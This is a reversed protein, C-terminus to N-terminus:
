EAAIRHNDGPLPGDAPIHVVPCMSVEGGRDRFGVSGKGGKAWGRRDALAKAIADRRSLEDNDLMERQKMYSIKADPGYKVNYTFIVKMLWHTVFLEIGKLPKLRYHRTAKDSLAYRLMNRGFWRMPKPFWRTAFGTMLSDMLDTQVPSYEHDWDEWAEAYAVMEDFTSPVGEIPLDGERRFHRSLAHLFKAQATQVHPPLGGLGLRTFLRHQGVAIMCFTIVFDSSKAFHGPVGKAVGMHIDNLKRVSAITDPHDPGNCYWTWFFGLTDQMRKVPRRIAKNTFVQAEAGHAPMVVHMNLSTILFHLIFEDMQYQAVLSMIEAYDHEPDLGAIHDDVWRRKQKIADDVDFM